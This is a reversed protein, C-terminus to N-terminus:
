IQDEENSGSDGGLHTTTFKDKKLRGRTTPGHTTKQNPVQQSEQTTNKKRGRKNQQSQTPSQETLVEQSQQTVVTHAEKTPKRKRGRKNSQQTLVEQSQHTM